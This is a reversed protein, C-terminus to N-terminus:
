PRASHAYRLKRFSLNADGVIVGRDGDLDMNPLEPEGGSITHTLNRVNRVILAPSCLIMSGKTVLNVRDQLQASAIPGSAREQITIARIATAKAIWLLPACRPPIVSAEHFAQTTADLLVAGV